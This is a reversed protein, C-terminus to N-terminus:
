ILASSIMGRAQTRGMVHRDAGRPTWVVMVLRM